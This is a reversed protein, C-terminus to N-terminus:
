PLFQSFFSKANDFIDKVSFSGGETSTRRERATLQCAGYASFWSSNELFRRSGGVTDPSFVRSPLKLSVRSFDEITAIGSGGGIIVAGGPLTRDKHIKKLHERILEFIDNLRAEVITDIKKRTFRIDETDGIKVLEAEELPIQFGLAIDNTINSSGIPFVELSIMVNNEVVSVTTTESGLDVLASGATRQRPKLAFEYTALPSPFVYEVNLGVSQVVETLDELHHTLSCIAFYRVELKHGHLGHPPTGMISRGDLRYEVPNLHLVQRNPYKEVVAIETSKHLKHLDSETILGDRKQITFTRNLTHGSLTIGGITISVNKIKRNCAREAAKVAEALSTQAEYKNVVYGHRLGQTPAEGVGIVRLINKQDSECVVVRTTASGIDIGAYIHKPQSSM